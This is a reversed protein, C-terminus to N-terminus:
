PSEIVGLVELRLALELQAGCESVPQGLREEAVKLRNSVAQRSIGLGEATSISNRNASFYALLTKRLVDGRSGALPQLYLDEFSALLLPNSSASAILAIDKYRTATGSSIVAIGAAVRAQAHTRRWGSPSKAPEGIGFPISGPWGNKAWTSIDQPDLPQNTGVWAWVETNSVVVSLVRGEVEKAFQRIQPKADPSLAVLGLHNLELDYDLLNPDVVEGAVLRRVRQVLRSDPSSTNGEVERRYEETATALIRDFAEDHTACVDQILGPDLLGIRKAEELLFHNLLMRAAFYRLQVEEIAIGHRAALRAQGALPLPARPAGAEGLAVVEIGYEVGRGVAERLGHLYEADRVPSDSELAHLRDLITQQIEAHRARLGDALM